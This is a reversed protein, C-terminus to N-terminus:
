SKKRFIQKEEEETEEEEEKGKRGRIEEPFKFHIKTCIRNPPAKGGWGLLARVTYGRM